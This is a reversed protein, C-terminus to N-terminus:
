VGLLYDEATSSQMKGERLRRGFIRRSRELRRRRDDTRAIERATRPQMLDSDSDPVVAAELVGADALGEPDFGANAFNTSV